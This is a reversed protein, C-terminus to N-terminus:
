ICAVEGVRDLSTTVRARTRLRDSQQLLIVRRSVTADIEALHKGTTAADGESEDERRGRMGIQM